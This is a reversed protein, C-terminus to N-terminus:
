KIRYAALLLRDGASQQTLVNTTLLEGETGAVGNVHVLPGDIHINPGHGDCYRLRISRRKGPGDKAFSVLM